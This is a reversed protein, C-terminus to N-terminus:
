NALVARYFKTGAGSPLDISAKGSEPITLTATGIWNGGIENATEIRVVQGAFASVSLADRGWYMVPPVEDEGVKARLVGNASLARLYGDEHAFIQVPHLAVPGGSWTLGDRSYKVEGVEDSWLFYGAAFTLNGFFTTPTFGNPTLQQWHIGDLSWSVTPPYPTIGIFRGNGAAYNAERAVRGHKLWHVGDASTTAAGDSRLGAYTGNLFGIVRAYNQGGYELTVWQEGDRSVLMGSPHYMFFLGDVFHPGWQVTRPLAHRKWNVGDESVTVASDSLLIVWRGNGAEIGAVWPEEKVFEWDIANTSQYIGTWDARIFKGRQYAVEGTPTALLPAVIQKWNTGTTSTFVMGNRGVAAWLPKDPLKEIARSWTFVQADVNTPWGQAAAPSLLKLRDTAGFVEDTDEIAFGNASQVGRWRVGDPTLFLQGNFNGYFAGNKFALPEWTTQFQGRTWNRGDTSRFTYGNNDIVLFLGNGFEITHVFAPQAAPTKFPPMTEWDRMDTSVLTDGEYRVAVYVGNGYVVCGVRSGGPEYHSVRWNVGDASTVMASNNGTAVYLGNVYRVRADADLAVPLAIERWNEGDDSHYFKAEQIGAMGVFGAPGAALSWWDYGHPRPYVWEWKLAPHATIVSFCVALTLVFRAFM